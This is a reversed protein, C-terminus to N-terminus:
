WSYWCIYKQTGDNFTYLHFSAPYKKKQWRTAKKMYNEAFTKAQEITDFFNFTLQFKSRKM